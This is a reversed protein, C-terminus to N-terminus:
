FFVMVGCGSDGVQKDEVPCIIGKLKSFWHWHQQYPLSLQSWNFLSIQHLSDLWSRMPSQDISRCCRWTNPLWHSRLLSLFLLRSNHTFIRITYEGYLESLPRHKNAICLTIKSCLLIKLLLLRTYCCYCHAPISLATVPLPLPLPLRLPRRLPLLLPVPVPLSPWSIGTLYILILNAPVFGSCSVWSAWTM